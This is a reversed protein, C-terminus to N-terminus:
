KESGKEANETNGNHGKETLLDGGRGTSFEIPTTPNGVTAGPHINLNTITAERTVELKATGYVNINIRPSLVDRLWATIRKM